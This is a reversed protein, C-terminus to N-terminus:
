QPPPSFFYTTEHYSNNIPMSSIALESWSGFIHCSASNGFLSLLDYQAFEQFFFFWHGAIALQQDNLNSLKSVFDHVKNKKFSTNFLQFSISPLVLYVYFVLGSSSMFGFSIGLLPKLSRTKLDSSYSRSVLKSGNQEGTPPRKYVTETVYRFIGFRKYLNPFTVLNKMDSLQHWAQQEQDPQKFRREQVLLWSFFNAESM